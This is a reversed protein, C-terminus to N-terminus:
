AAYMKTNSHDQEVSRSNDNNNSNDNSYKRFSLMLLVSTRTTAGGLGQEGFNSIKGESDAVLDAKKWSLVM